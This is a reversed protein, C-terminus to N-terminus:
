EQADMQGDMWRHADTQREDSSHMHMDTYDVETHAWKNKHSGMRTIVKLRSVM